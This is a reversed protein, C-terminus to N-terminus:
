FSYVSKFFYYCCCYNHVLILLFDLLNLLSSLSVSIQKITPYFKNLVEIKNICYCSIPSWYDSIKKTCIWFILLFFFFFLKLLNSYFNKFLTFCVFGKSVGTDMRNFMEIKWAFSKIGKLKFEFNKNKLINTLKTCNDVTSTLITSGWRTSKPKRRECVNIFIFVVIQFKFLINM